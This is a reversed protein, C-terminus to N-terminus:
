NDLVYQCEATCSLAGCWSPTLADGDVMVGGEAGRPYMLDIFRLGPMSLAIQSVDLSIVM